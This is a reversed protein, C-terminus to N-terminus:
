LGGAGLAVPRDSRLVLDPQAGFRLGELVGLVFDGALCLNSLPLTRCFLADTVETESLSCSLFM